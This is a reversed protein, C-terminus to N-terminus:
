PMASVCGTVTIEAMPECPPLKDTASPDPTNIGAPASEDSVTIVIWFLGAVM